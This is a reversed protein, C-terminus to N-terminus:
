GQVQENEASGSSSTDEEDGTSETDEAEGSSESDRGQGVKEDAISEGLVDLLALQDKLVSRFRALFSDRQARLSTIEGEMKLVADRSKSEYKNARIQADKVILDAEKRANKKVEDTSKQATVLTDNITNEIKEYEQVREKQRKLESSLENNANILSEYESAVMELFSNVQDRDFGMMSKKFPQKRIDLPTIRM